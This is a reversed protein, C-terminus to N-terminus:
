AASVSKVKEGNIKKSGKAKRAKTKKLDRKIKTAIKKSAKEVAKKVRKSPGEKEYQVVASNVSDEIKSRIEKKTIGKETSKKEKM